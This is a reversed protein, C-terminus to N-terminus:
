LAQSGRNGYIMEPTATHKWKTTICVHGHTTHSAIPTIQFLPATYQM